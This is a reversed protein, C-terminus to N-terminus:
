VQTNHVHQNQNLLGLGPNVQRVALVIGAPAQERSTLSASSAMGSNGSHTLGQLIVSAIIFFLVATCVVRLCLALHKVHLISKVIVGAEAQSSRSPPFSLCLLTLDSAGYEGGGM